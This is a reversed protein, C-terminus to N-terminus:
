MKEGKRLENRLYFSFLFSTIVSGSLSFVTNIIARTQRTSGVEAFASNFSPWYMWLFVTGLFSTIDSFYNASMSPNKLQARSKLLYCVTLGFFAGFAHIVMSGGIDAVKM